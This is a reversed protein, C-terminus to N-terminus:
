HRSDRSTNHPLRILDYIYLHNTMIRYRAAMVLLQITENTRQCIM